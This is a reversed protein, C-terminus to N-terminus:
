EGNDKGMVEEALLGFDITPDNIVSEYKDKDWIEIKNVASSLVVEKSIVAYKILDKPILFRGSSDIEIEKVGAMFIRIFDVNKKIFRNLKNIGDAEKNWEEMSYLELCPHFVSRKIIFLESLSSSFQKKMASPLM